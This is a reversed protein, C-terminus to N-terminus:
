INAITAIRSRFNPAFIFAVVIIVSAACALFQLLSARADETSYSASQDPRPRKLVTVSSYLSYLILLGETCKRRRWAGNTGFFNWENISHLVFTILLMTLRCAGSEPDYLLSMWLAALSVCCVSASLEIAHMVFSLSSAFCARAPKRKPPSTASESKSLQLSPM